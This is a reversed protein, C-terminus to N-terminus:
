LGNAFRFNITDTDDDEFRKPTAPAEALSPFSFVIRNPSRAYGPKSCRPCAQRERDAADLEEPSPNFLVQVHCPPRSQIIKKELSAIRRLIEGSM